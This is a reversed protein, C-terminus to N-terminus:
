SLFVSLIMQNLNLVSLPTLFYVFGLLIYLNGHKTIM